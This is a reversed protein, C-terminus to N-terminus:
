ESRVIKNWNKKFQDHFTKILNDINPYQMQNLKIGDAYNICQDTIMIIILKM